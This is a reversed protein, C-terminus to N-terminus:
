KVQVLISTKTESKVVVADIVMLSFLFSNLPIVSCYHIYKRPRINSCSIKLSLPAVNQVDHIQVMDKELRRHICKSETFRELYFFTQKKSQLILIYTYLM